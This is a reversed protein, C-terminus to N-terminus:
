VYIAVVALLAGATGFFLFFHWMVVPFLTLQWMVVTSAGPFSQLLLCIYLYWTKVSFSLNERLCDKMNRITLTLYKMLSLLGSAEFNGQLQRLRIQYALGCGLIAPSNWLSKPRLSFYSLWCGLMAQSNPLSKPRHNFFKLRCAITEDSETCAQLPKERDIDKYEVSSGKKQFPINKIQM